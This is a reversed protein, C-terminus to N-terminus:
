DKTTSEYTKGGKKIGEFFHKTILQPRTIASGIVIAHAGLSLAKSADEISWIRGEALVPIEVEKVLDEVLQFDPPEQKPSYPTYGSLTTSICDVGLKEAAIGEEKTSIDAMVLRNNAKIYHILENLLEGQPRTRQTADMAIVDAEAELLEDIEKKTPTIFIESDEYDQKVLGIIPLDVEQKIAQIDEKGNVRLGVAGGEAAALAMKTMFQPGHLPEDVLAQCSVILNGKTQDFFTKSEEKM